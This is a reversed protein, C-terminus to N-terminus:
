GAYKRLWVSVDDRMSPVIEHAGDYSKFEVDAARLRLREEYDAVRSPSYFEDETGALHLV